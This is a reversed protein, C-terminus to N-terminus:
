VDCIKFNGNIRYISYIGYIRYSISCKIPDDISIYLIILQIKKTFNLESQRIIMSM